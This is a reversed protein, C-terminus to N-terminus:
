KFEWDDFKVEVNSLIFFVMEFTVDINIDALLFTEEFFRFM